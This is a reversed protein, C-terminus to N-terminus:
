TLEFGQERFHQDFAFARTLGRRRMADFSVCDVLSLGRRNAVLLAAVAASHTDGTVWEVELLPVVDRALVRVADIGLRRQAVAFTEVLVYSTTLLPEDDEVLRQWTTAADAHRDEDADLIALLASTDVFATL